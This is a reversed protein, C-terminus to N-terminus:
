FSQHLQQCLAVLETMERTQREKWSGRATKQLRERLMESGGLQGIQEDTGKDTDLTVCHRHTHARALCPRSYQVAM